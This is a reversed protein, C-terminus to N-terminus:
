SLKASEARAPETEGVDAHARGLYAYATAFKPDVEIARKLLSVTEASQAKAQFERMAASFSRWAELGYVGGTSILDIRKETARPDIERLASNWCSEM